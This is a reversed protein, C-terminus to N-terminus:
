QEPPMYGLTGKMTRRGSLDISASAGAVDRRFHKALGLDAILPRGDETFLVNEPKLDRHVIGRAHARGAATALAQVLRTASGPSPAVGGGGRRVEAAARYGGGQM